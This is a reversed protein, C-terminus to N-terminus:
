LQLRSDLIKYVDETTVAERLGARVDEEILARSVQALLRLHTTGAEAEPVLMALLVTVPDGGWDVPQNLRVVILAAEQISPRKAHPIAIGDMLATSVQAERDLMGQVVDDSDDAYGLNVATDAIAVMAERQTLADFGLVINEVRFM